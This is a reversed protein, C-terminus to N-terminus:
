AVCGVSIENVFPVIRSSRAESLPLPIDHWFSVRRRRQATVDVLYTRFKDAPSGGQTDVVVEFGALVAELSGHVPWAVSILIVVCVLVLVAGGVIGVATLPSPKAQASKQTFIPRRLTAAAM